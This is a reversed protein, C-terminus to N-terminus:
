RTNSGVLAPANRLNWRRMGWAAIIAGILTFIFIGSVLAIQPKTLGLTLRHM